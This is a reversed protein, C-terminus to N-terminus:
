SAKKKLPSTRIPGGKLQNLLSFLGFFTRNVYLFHESGRNGSMSRIDKNKSMEEGMKAIEAFFDANSFDFEDENFPACMMGLINGFISRVIKKQEETDEKSFIQLEWLLEEFRVPNNINEKKTLEFFPLYFSKPIEKMCGFDLAILEGSENVLFNGPHPDAHMKGLEHFQYMYFDWLTQSIKNATELDTNGANLESLHKGEMWEMTIIRDSSYEPFMKPFRINPLHACAAAMEASQSIEREYDTEEILKSEVEQFYREVDKSKMNFMKLAFPKVLALDSSISDAVGPYQIKVAFKQQGKRAFHVQGISAAFSSESNFEDFIDEPYKGLTKFFTKRVLPGSLPPVSFQALSFKDVYAKPLVSQDMSMMQAMKLASGKLQSLGDYIDSANNEHLNAKAEDADGTLKQGYYKLYNIGVKAGVGVMKSARQIKSTPIKDLSKM